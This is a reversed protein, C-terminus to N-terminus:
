KNSLKKQMEAKALLQDIRADLDERSEVVIPKDSDGQIIHRTIPYLSELKNIEKIYNLYVQMGKPTNQFESKMNRLKQKIEAIRLSRKQEITAEENEHWALYAKRLLNKAQRRGIDWDSQEINKLILYDPVGNLIWGQITFVRKETEIKTSKAM